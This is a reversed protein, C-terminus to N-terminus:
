NQAKEIIEVLEFKKRASYPRSPTVTVKDGVQSKNEADHFMVKNSRRMYKHYQPHLVLREVLATRTKDNAASTVTCKIPKAKKVQSESV